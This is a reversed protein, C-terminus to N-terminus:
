RIQFIVGKGAADLLYLANGAVTMYRPYFDASIDCMYTGAVSGATIKIVRAGEGKFIPGLLYYISDNASAADIVSFLVSTLSGTTKQGALYKVSRAIEASEIPTTTQTLGRFDVTTLDGSIQNILAARDAGLSILLSPAPVPAAIAADEKYQGQDVRGLAVKTSNFWIISAPASGQVAFKNILDPIQVKAAASGSGLFTLSTTRAARDPTAVWVGGDQQIAARQVPSPIPASNAAVKAVQADASIIRPNAGLRVIILGSQVASVTTLATPGLAASVDFQKAAPLRTMQAQALGVFLAISALLRLEGM